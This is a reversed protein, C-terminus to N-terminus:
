EATFDARHDRAWRAFTRYQKGTVTEFDPSVVFEDMPVAWPGIGLRGAAIAARVRDGARPRVELYDDIAATQGDLWFCALRGSEIDDLVADVLRM